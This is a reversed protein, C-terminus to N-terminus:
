FTIWLPIMEILAVLGTDDELLDIWHARIAAAYDASMPRPERRIAPVWKAYADRTLKRM